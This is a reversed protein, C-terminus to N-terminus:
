YSLIIKNILTGRRDVKSSNDNLHSQYATIFIIVTIIITLIFTIHAHSSQSTTM